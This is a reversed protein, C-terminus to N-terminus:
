SARVSCILHAKIELIKCRLGTPEVELRKLTKLVEAGIRYALFCIDLFQQIIRSTCKKNAELSRTDTSAELQNM